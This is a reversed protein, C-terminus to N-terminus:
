ERVVNIGRSDELKIYRLKWDHKKGQSGILHIGLLDPNKSLLVDKVTKLADLSYSLNLHTAPQTSLNVNVQVEVFQTGKVKRDGLDHVRDLLFIKVTRDSRDTFSPEIDQQTGVTLKIRDLLDKVHRQSGTRTYRHIDTINSIHLIGM